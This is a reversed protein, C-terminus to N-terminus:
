KFTYRPSELVFGNNAIELALTIYFYTSSKRAGVLSFVNQCCIVMHHIDTFILWCGPVFIFKKILYTINNKM